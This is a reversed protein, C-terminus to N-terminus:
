IKAMARDYVTPHTAVMLIAIKNDTKDRSGATHRQAYLKDVTETLITTKRVYRQSKSALLICFNWWIKFKALGSLPVASDFMLINIQRYTKGTSRVMCIQRTQMKDKNRILNLSQTRM